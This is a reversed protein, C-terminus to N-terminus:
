STCLGTGAGVRGWLSPCVFNRIRGHATPLRLRAFGPAAVCSLQRTKKPRFAPAAAAARGACRVPAATKNLRFYSSGPEVACSPPKSAPRPQPPGAVAPHAARGAPAPRFADRPHHPHPHPDHPASKRSFVIARM